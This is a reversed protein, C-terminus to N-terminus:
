RLLLTEMDVRDHFRKSRLAATDIGASCVGSGTTLEEKWPEHGVPPECIMAGKSSVAAVAARELCKVGFLLRDDPGFQESSTVLLDCGQKSLSVAVEPHVLSEPRVLAIRAPGFDAMVASCGPALSIQQSSSVLGYASNGNQGEHEAVVAATRNSTFRVIQEATFPGMSRPLVLLMPVSNCEAATSELLSVAQGPSEPVLCRIDLPGQPPLGWLGGFDDLGNVDLYLESFDEPQRLAMIAQRRESSLRGNVLPYEVIWATSTSSSEDLLVTGQPTVVYSRCERCDMMRDLGTRNCGVIGFGNELSRARWILRPDLGSPPWNSPVLVLDAGNLAQSRPLLGSYSDACILIGLRGWPTDFVGPRSVQGPCAWRREAAVIKRHFAAPEGDPGVVLATNYYIGTALDCEAIGTCIYAKYQRAVPWLCEFTEGTIAEVCAAVHRRSDFSYGSVALEPAVIISAGRGAAELALAALAKRNEEVCGHRVDLHIVGICLTDTM